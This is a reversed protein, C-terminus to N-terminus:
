PYKFIAVTNCFWNGNPLAPVLAVNDVEVMNTTGITNLAYIYVAESQITAVMHEQCNNTLLCSSDYNNFFSYLGAGYILVYASNIIRLGYTKYCTVQYCESFTPDEYAPNVPFPVRADPNAQM